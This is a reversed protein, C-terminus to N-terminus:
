LVRRKKSAASSEARAWLCAAKKLRPMECPAVLKGLALNQSDPEKDTGSVAKQAEIEQRSARMRM